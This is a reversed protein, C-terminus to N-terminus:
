SYLYFYVENKSKNPNAKQYDEVFEEMISEFAKIVKKKFEKTKKVVLKEQSWLLCGEKCDTQLVERSGLVQFSIKMVPREILSSFVVEIMHAQKIRSEKRKESLKLTDGSYVNGIKKLYYVLVGRMSNELGEFEGFVLFRNKEELLVPNNTFRSAETARIQCFCGMLFIFIYKIMGEGRIWLCARM